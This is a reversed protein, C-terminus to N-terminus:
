FYVLNAPKDLEAYTFLDYIIRSLLIKLFVASKFNAMDYKYILKSGNANLAFGLGKFKNLPINQQDGDDFFYEANFVDKVNVSISLMHTALMEFTIGINNDANLFLIFGNHTGEILKFLADDLKQDDYKPEKKQKRLKRLLEGYEKRKIEYYAELRPPKLTDDPKNFMKMTQELRQKEEYFPDKLKYLTYLQSQIKFLAQSNYHANLYESEEVSAKIYSDLTQSEAELM